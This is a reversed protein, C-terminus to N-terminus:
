RVHALAVAAGVALAGGALSRRSPREHELLYALPIVFLPTLAVIPLVIASPTKSLAWQYCSVGIAPGVVANALIWPRAARWQPPQAQGARRRSCAYALTIFVLGGLLRQWAATGGDIPEGHAQEVLYAKRSIVAGGGQGIAGVCGFFLGLARGAPAAPRGNEAVLRGRKDPAVAVAVGLLILGACVLELPNLTTGLWLWEVLAAVPSALCQVMLAALRSGLRPYAAFLGLDGLGFGVVGSWMFIPLATGHWGRGFLLAWAGLLVAALWLRAFNAALAGVLRTSRHAFVASLAFFFATLFAPFM